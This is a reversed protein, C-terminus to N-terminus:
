RFRLPIRTSAAHEPLGSPNSKELVLTGTDTKPPNFNLTLAFPVYDPTMWEGNARASGWTMVSDNGDFLRVPFEAEFFWTGRARGVVWLPSQALQNPKPTDLLVAGSGPPPAGNVPARRPPSALSEAVSAVSDVILYGADPHIVDPDRPLPRLAWYGFAVGALLAVVGLAWGIQRSRSM